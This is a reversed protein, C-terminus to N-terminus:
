WQGRKKATAQAEGRGGLRSSGGGGNFLAASRIKKGEKGRVEKKTCEGKNKKSVTTNSAIEKDWWSPNKKSAAFGGENRTDGKPEQVL